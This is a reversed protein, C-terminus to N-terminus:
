RTGPGADPAPSAHDPQLRLDTHAHNEQSAGSAPQSEPQSSHEPSIAPDPIDQGEYSQAVTENTPNNAIERPANAPAMQGVQTEENKEKKKKEEDGFLDLFKASATFSLWM